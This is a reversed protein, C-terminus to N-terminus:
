PADKPFYIFCHCLGLSLRQQRSVATLSGRGCYVEAANLQPDGTEIYAAPGDFMIPESFMM